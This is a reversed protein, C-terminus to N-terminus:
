HTEMEEILARLAGRLRKERLPGDGVSASLHAFQALMEQEVFPEPDRVGLSELAYLAATRLLARTERSLGSLATPDATPMPVPHRRRAPAARLASLPALEVVFSGPTHEHIAEVVGRRRLTALLARVAERVVSVGAISQNGRGTIVLVDGVREAQKGRLWAEARETAQVATPLMSRLNLTRGPGFRAEDFAAQVARMGTHPTPRRTM